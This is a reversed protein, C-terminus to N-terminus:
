KLESLFRAIDERPNESTKLTERLNKAAEMEQENLMGSAHDTASRTFDPTFGDAYNADERMWLSMNAAGSFEQLITQNVPDGPDSDFFGIITLSGGEELARAASFLRKAKYVSGAAIGCPLSRAGQPASASYAKCLATFSDVFLVVDEKQEALRMARELCLEAAHVHNEACNEMSSYMVEGDFAKRRLVIDEPRKDILLLIRKASPCVAAAQASMRDLLVERVQDAPAMIAARQGYGIPCLLDMATLLPNNLDAASLNLRRTPYCATLTDFAAREFDEEANQGNIQTIYLLASYRDGERQPRTKGSIQDGNRLSFRRIQANSVYVDNRGPCLNQSRLFGYGDPLVELIGTTDGCEGTALMENVPTSVAQPEQHAYSEQAAYETPRSAYEPRAPYDARPSYEARYPMAQTRPDPGFTRADSHTEPGFRNYAAPQRAPYTTEQARQAYAQDR